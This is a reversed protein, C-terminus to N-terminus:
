NICYLQALLKIMFILLLQSEINTKLTQLLTTRQLTSGDLPVGEAVSEGRAAIVYVM